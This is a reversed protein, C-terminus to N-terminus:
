GDYPRDMEFATRIAEVLEAPREMPILHGCAEIVVMRAGEIGDRLDESEEVTRLADNAAAVVLTPCQIEGLRDTDDERAMAAQRRYVDPGLRMGMAQVRRIREDTRHDPHLSREVATRSVERFHGAAIAPRAPVARTSTAVLGLGAVMEPAQYVMERAVYGGMSFGVVIAPGGLREIARAAMEGVLAGHATDVDIVRGMAHLEPRADTWVDEDLMFGPILVIDM